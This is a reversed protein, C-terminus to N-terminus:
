SFCCSISLLGSLKCCFDKLVETTYPTVPLRGPNYNAESGQISRFDVCFSERRKIQISDMCGTGDAVARQCDTSVRRKKERKTLEQPTHSNAETESLYFV